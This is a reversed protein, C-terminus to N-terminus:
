RLMSQAAQYDIHEIMHEAMICDFTDDDFPFRNSADLYAVSGCNPIIDTNLWGPLLNNSAAIQLKKVAHTKLYNVIQGNRKGLWVLVHMDQTLGRLARALGIIFESSKLHKRLKVIKQRPLVSSASINSAIPLQLDCINCHRPPSALGRVVRRRDILSHRCGQRPKPLSSIGKHLHILILIPHTIPRGPTRLPASTSRLRTRPGIPSWRLVRQHD